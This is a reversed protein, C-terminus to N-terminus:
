SLNKLPPNKITVLRITRRRNDQALLAQFDTNTVPDPRRRAQRWEMFLSNALRRFMGFIWIGHNSQVRLFDYAPLSRRLQAAVFDADVPKTLRITQDDDHADDWKIKGVTIQSV